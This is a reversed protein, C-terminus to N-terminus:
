DDNWECNIFNARAKHQMVILRGLDVNRNHKSFTRYLDHALWFPDINHRLWFAEESEGTNHLANPGYSHLAPVLPVCLRDPPKMAAAYHGIRIHHAHVDDEMLSLCCPLNHLWSVYDADKDPDPQVKPKRSKPIAGSAFNNIRGM